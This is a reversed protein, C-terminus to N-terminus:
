AIGTQRQSVAVVGIIMLILALSLIAWEGLTPVINQPEETFGVFLSVNRGTADFFGTAGGSFRGSVVGDGDDSWEWLYDCSANTTTLISVWITQGAFVSVNPFSASFATEGPFGGAEVTTPTVTFPGGLITSVDAFGGADGFITISFDSSVGADCIGVVYYGVWCVQNIIGDATIPVNEAIEQYGSICTTCNVDNFYGGAQNPDAEYITNNIDCNADSFVSEPIRDLDHIVPSQASISM